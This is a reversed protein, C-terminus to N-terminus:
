EACRRRRPARILRRHPGEARAPAGTEELARSHIRANRETVSKTLARMREVYTRLSARESMTDTEPLEGDHGMREGFPTGAPADILAAAPRRPRPRGALSGVVFGVVIAVATGAPLTRSKTHDPATGAM